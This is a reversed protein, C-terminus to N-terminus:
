LRPPPSSPGNVSPNEDGPRTTIWKLWRSRGLSHLGVLLGDPFWGLGAVALWTALFAAGMVKTATELPPDQQTTVALATLWATAISLLAAMYGAYRGTGIVDGHRIFLPANCLLAASLLSWKWLAWSRPMFSCAPSSALLSQITMNEACDCVGAAIAFATAILGSARLSHRGDARWQTWGVLALFVVYTVIFVYDRDQQALLTVRNQHCVVSVVLPGAAPCALSEGLIQQVDKASRAIEIALGPRSIGNPLPHNCLGGRSVNLAAFLAVLGAGAAFRAVRRV